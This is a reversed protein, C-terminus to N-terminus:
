NEAAEQGDRGGAVLEAYDRKTKLMAYYTCIRAVYAQGEHLFGLRDGVGFVYAKLAARLDGGWMNLLRRLELATVTLNRPISDLDEPRRILRPALARATSFMVQGLGRAGKSSVAQSDFSSEVAVLAFLLDPDVAHRAAAALIQATLYQRQGSDGRLPAFGRLFHDYVPDPVAPPPEPKELRAAIAAAEPAQAISTAPQATSRGAAGVALLIVLGLLGCATWRLRRRSAELAKLRHILAQLVHNTM